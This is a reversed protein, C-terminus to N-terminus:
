SCWGAAAGAAAAPVLWTWAQLTWQHPQGQPGPAILVLATLALFVAPGIWMRQLKLPRARSMKRMRLYLVPLLILIPLFLQLLQQQTM